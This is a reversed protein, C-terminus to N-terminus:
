CGMLLNVIASHPQRGCDFWYAQYAIMRGLTIMIAWLALSLGGAVRAARPPVPYMDWDAVGRYVTRYFEWANIVALVLTVMKLRFFLNHYRSVPEAYFLLAGSVIMVLFGAATWPLIRAMVESAPVRQLTLGLLRLDVMVATGVFVCLTLVHVMLVILFVYRSEHLAISGPTAALWECFRLLSM